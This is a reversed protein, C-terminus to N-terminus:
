MIKQLRKMETENRKFRNIQFKRYVLSGNLLKDYEIVNESENLKCCNYIHELDEKEGCCKVM